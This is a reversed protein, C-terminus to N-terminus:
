NDIPWIISEQIYRCQCDPLVKAEYGLWVDADDYEGAGANWGGPDFGIELDALLVHVVEDYALPLLMEKVAIKLDEYFDGKAGRVKDASGEPEGGWDEIDILWGQDYEVHLLLWEGVRDVM